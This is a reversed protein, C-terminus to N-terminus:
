IAAVEDSEVAATLISLLPAMQRVITFLAVSNVLKYLTDVMSGSFHTFSSM